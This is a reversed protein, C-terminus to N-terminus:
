KICAELPVLYLHSSANTTSTDFLCDACTECKPAPEQERRRVNGSTVSRTLYSHSKIRGFGRNLPRQLIHKVSNVAGESELVPNNIQIRRCPRRIPQDCDVGFATFAPTRCPIFPHLLINKLAISIWINAKPGSVRQAVQIEAFVLQDRHVANEAKIAFIM